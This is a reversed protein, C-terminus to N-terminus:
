YKVSCGYPKTAAPDPARGAALATLAADVYNVATGGGRPDDDIAGAYALRGDADIVFMDPTTKAGYARGVEGSPDVLVRYRIGNEALFAHYAAPELHDSHDPRTSNVALWVVDPHRDAVSQMTHAQAHRRSFPCNPNAWELVVVKGQLAALSVSSGDLDALTFDPAPQGIAPAALTPGSCALWLAGALLMAASRSISTM